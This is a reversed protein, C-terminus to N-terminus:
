PVEAGEAAALAARLAARARNLRSAITGAPVGLVEGASTYDFGDGDVLLVAARDEPPLTALARALSSAESVGVLPDDHVGPQEALDHLPVLRPQPRRLEDLCVNYAIRYLWTGLAAEGRFDPLGRFARLFTEQLADAVQDSRGLMRAVLGRLVPEHERVVAVFADVDGTRAREVGSPGKSGSIAAVLVSVDREVRSPPSEKM